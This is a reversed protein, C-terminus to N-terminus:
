FVKTSSNEARMTREVFHWFGKKKCLTKAYHSKMNSCPTWYPSSHSWKQHWANKEMMRIISFDTCKPIQFLFFKFIEFPSKAWKEFKWGFWLSIKKIGFILTYVNKWWLFSPSFHRAGFIFGCYSKLFKDWGYPVGQIHLRTADNPLM